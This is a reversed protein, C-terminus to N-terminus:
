TKKAGKALHRRRLERVLWLSTFVIGGFGVVAVFSHFAYAAAYRPRTGSGGARLKRDELTPIDNASEATGDPPPTAEMVHRVDYFPYGCPQFGKDKAMVGFGESELRHKYPEVPFIAGAQHVRAEVLLAASGVGDLKEGYYRDLNGWTGYVTGLSGGIGRSIARDRIEDMHERHGLAGKMEPFAEYGEFVVEPGGPGFAEDPQLEKWSNRDYTNSGYGASGILVHPAVVPRGVALLDQIMSEPFRIVDVDLWLVAFIDPQLAAELLANRSEALIKRREIQVSLAHRDSPAIYNFDKEIVQVNAFHRLQGEGLTRAAEATGDTSDSVLFSISLLQKPYTLSNLAAAFKDLADAANKLPTAVLIKKQQRLVAKPDM